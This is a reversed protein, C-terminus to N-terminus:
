ELKVDTFRKLTTFVEDWVNEPKEKLAYKIDMDSPCNRGVSNEKNESKM